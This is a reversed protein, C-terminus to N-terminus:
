LLWARVPRMGPRLGPDPIPVAVGPGVCWGECVDRPHLPATWAKVEDLPASTVIFAVCAVPWIDADAEDDPDPVETLELFVGQVDPRERIDFLVRRFEALGPHRDALLNVGISQEDTNGDFFDELSVAPLEADGEMMALVKEILRRRAQSDM